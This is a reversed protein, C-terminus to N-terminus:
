SEPEHQLRWPVVETCRLRANCVALMGTLEPIGYHQTGSALAIVSFLPNGFLISAAVIGVDPTHIVAVCHRNMSRGPFLMDLARTAEESEGFAQFPLKVAQLEGSDKAFLVRHWEPFLPDSLWEDGLFWYAALFAVKLLARAITTKDFELKFILWQADLPSPARVKAEQGRGRWKNVLETILRETEDRACTVTCENAGPVCRVPNRVWVRMNGETDLEVEVQTPTGEIHGRLKWRTEGSRSKINLLCRYGRILSCNALGADLTRGLHSDLGADARVAFDLSGGIAHPFIHTNTVKELQSLPKLTYPCLDHTSDRRQFRGHM